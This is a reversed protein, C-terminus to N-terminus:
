VIVPSRTLESVVPSGKRATLPIQYISSALFDQSLMQQGQLSLLNKAGAPRALLPISSSQRIKHLLPESEKRFGLIRAYFTGGERLNRKTEEDTVGLLIHLLARRIRSLTWQRTKLLAAFQAPNRYQPLMKIIRDSLDGTVDLYRSYDSETLLRYHLLASFDEMSLLRNELVERQLLSFVEAPLCGSLSKLCDEQSASDAAGLTLGTQRQFSESLCARRIGEASAYKGTLDGSHYDEGIRKMPYIRISSHRKLLARTYELGLINNPSSLFASLEVWSNDSDQKDASEKGEVPDNGSEEKEETEKLVTRLAMERSRPYTLGQKQLRLLTARYLESEENFCSAIRKFLKADPTECGFSLVDVCGLQDLLSVAGAAFYEASACAYSVPLELVLDAGSLLAMRTRIYKDVMAPEGRQVFDPSMVVLVYEAGCDSRTQRIQYAHGNHFPNYEAIIAAINVFGGGQAM